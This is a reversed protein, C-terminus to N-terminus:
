LFRLSLFEFTDLVVASLLVLSHQHTELFSAPQLLDDHLGVLSKSVNKDIRDM